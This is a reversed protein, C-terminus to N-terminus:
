GAVPEPRLAFGRKLLLERLRSVTVPYRDVDGCIVIHIENGDTSWAMKLGAGNIRFERAFTGNLMREAFGDAGLRMATAILESCPHGYAVEDPTAKLSTSMMDILCQGLRSPSTM